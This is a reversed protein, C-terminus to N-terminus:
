KRGVWRRARTRIDEDFGLVVAQVLILSSALFFLWAEFVFSQFTLPLRRDPNIHWIGDHIAAASACGLYVTAMAVSVAIPRWQMRLTRGAMLWQVAVIPVAWALIFALYTLEGM